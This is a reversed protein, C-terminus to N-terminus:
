EHDSGHGTDPSPPPLGPLLEPRVLYLEAIGRARAPTRIAGNAPQQGWRSLIRRTIQPHLEALEDSAMAEATTPYAARIAAARTRAEIETLPAQTKTNSTRRRAM